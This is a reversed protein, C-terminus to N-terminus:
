EPRTWVVAAAALFHRQRVMEMSVRQDDRGATNFVHCAVLEVAEIMRKHLFCCATPSKEVSRSALFAASCAASSHCRVLDPM